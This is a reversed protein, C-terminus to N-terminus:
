IKKRSLIILSERLHHNKKNQDYLKYWQQSPLRKLYRLIRIEKLFWGMELAIESIIFDVPIEIGGYASTSVVLWVSANDHSCNLLNLLIKKMDEFYAPIMDVLNPNWLSESNEKIDPYCNDFHYGFSKLAPKQWGVQVHSRLTKMRLKRLQKNTKVFEGLFLEPRYIDTYDFTNLYPPSMICLKFKKNEMRTTLTVRSDGKFFISKNLNDPDVEIDENIINYRSEMSSLFDERSYNIDQWNKKYRLCKGDKKANSVDMVSSLLCLKLLERSKGRLLKAVQWGGTFARIVDKNFLWKDLSGKESFTSFGELYSKASKKAGTIVKEYSDQFNDKTAKLQKTKSVFSLFPNVEFGIANINSKAAVLPVTGSGCFPDIILDDEGCNSENIATEVLAPSFSEKFHYWRHRSKLKGTEAGVDIDETKDRVVKAEILRQM